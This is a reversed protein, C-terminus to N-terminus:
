EAVPEPEFKLVRVKGDEASEMDILWGDGPEVDTRMWIVHYRLLNQILDCWEDISRGFDVKREGPRFPNWMHLIDGCKDYLTVFDSRTLFGEKLPELNWHGEEILHPTMPEPYFKPHVAEIRDLIAKARWAKDIDKHAAEYAERHALLSGFAISELIKRVQICIAEADFDERGLSVEGRTFRRVGAIRQKIDEMLLSYNATTSGVLDSM